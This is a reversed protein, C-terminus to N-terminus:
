TLRRVQHNEGRMRTNKGISQNPQRRHYRVATHLPIKGPEKRVHLLVVAYIQLSFVTASIGAACVPPGSNLDGASIYLSVLSAHM